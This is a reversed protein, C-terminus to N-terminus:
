DFIGRVGMANIVVKNILNGQKNMQNKKEEGYFCELILEVLVQVKHVKMVIAIVAM